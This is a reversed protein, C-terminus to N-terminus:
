AHGPEEKTTHKPRYVTVITKVYRATHGTQAVHQRLRERTPEPHIECGECEAYGDLRVHDIRVRSGRNM